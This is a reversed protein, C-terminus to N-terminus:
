YPEFCHDFIKYEETWSDVIEGDKYKKYARVEISYVANNPMGLDNYGCAAPDVFNRTTTSIITYHVDESPAKDENDTQASVQQMFCLGLVFFLASLKQTSVM